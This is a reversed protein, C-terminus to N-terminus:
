DLPLNDNALVQEYRDLVAAVNPLDVHHFLSTILSYHEMEVDYDVRAVLSFDAKNAWSDFKRARQREHQDSSDYVAIVVNDVQEFMRLFFYRVTDGIRHDTPTRKPPRLAGVVNLDFAYLRCGLDHTGFMFDYNSFIAQYTVGHDTTFQYAINGGPELEIFPYPDYSSSPM